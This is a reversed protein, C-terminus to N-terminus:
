PLSGVAWTSGWAAGTLEVGLPEEEPVLTGMSSTISLTAV